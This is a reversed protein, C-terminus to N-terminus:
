IWNKPSFRTYYYVRNQYIIRCKFIYILWCTLLRTSWVFKMLPYVIKRFIRLTKPAKRLEANEIYAGFISFSIIKAAANEDFTSSNGYKQWGLHTATFNRLRGVHLDPRIYSNHGPYFRLNKTIMCNYDYIAATTDVPAAFIDDCIKAEYYRQESNLTEALEPRNLLNELSLTLGLKGIFPNKQMTEVLKTLWCEGDIKAPFEIDGDTIVCYKQHFLTKNNQIWKLASNLGLVWQNRNNRFIM